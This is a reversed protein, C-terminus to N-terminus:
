SQRRRQIAYRPSLGRPPKGVLLRFQDAASLRLAYFREITSPPMRYFREFIHWRNHPPYWCFLFRNLLHCYRTQRVHRRIFEAFRGGALGKAPHAAVFAALRAAVPFSYGTAAHFWGGGYGAVLPDTVHRPLSGSWPMPLVGAEERIVNRVTYKKKEAYAYIEARIRERDLV